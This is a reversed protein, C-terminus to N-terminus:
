APVRPLRVGGRLVYGSKRSDWVTKGDTGVVRAHIHDNWLSGKAANTAKVKSGSYIVRADDTITLYLEAAEAEAAREEAALRLSTERRKEEALKRNEDELQAVYAALEELDTRKVRM